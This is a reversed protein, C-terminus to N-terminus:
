SEVSWIGSGSFAVRASQFDENMTWTAQGNITGSPPTIVAPFGSLNGVVDQVVWEQSQGAALTVSPFNLVVQALGSTRNLIIRSDTALISQPTSATIIRVPAIGGGVGIATKLNALLTALNGDDLADVGLTDVIFQAIVYSIAASQRWSKNCFASDATGPENGSTRLPNAAYTPQDEINAGFGQAFPLFDNAAM